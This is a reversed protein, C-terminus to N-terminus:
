RTKEVRLLIQYIRSQEPLQTVPFQMSQAMRTIEQLFLQVREDVHVYTYSQKKVDFTEEPFLTRVTQPTFFRLHTRDLIGADRYTWDGLLLPFLAE